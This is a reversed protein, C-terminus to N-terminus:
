SLSCLSAAYVASFSFFQGLLHLRSYVALSVVFALVLRLLSLQYWGLLFLVLLVLAVASVALCYRLSSAIGAVAAALYLNLFHILRLVHDSGEAGCSYVAFIM